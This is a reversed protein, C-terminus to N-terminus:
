VSFGQSYDTTSHGGPEVFTTHLAWDAKRYYKAKRQITKMALRNRFVTIVRQGLRSDLLVTTGELRAYKDDSRDDAPINRKGLFCHLVGASRYRRGHHVVYWVDQESLRRQAMRTAAHDTFELRIYM